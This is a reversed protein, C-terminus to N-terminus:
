DGREIDSRHRIGNSDIRCCWKVYSAWGTRNREIVGNAILDDETGDIDSDPCVLGVAMGEHLGLEAGHVDARRDKQSFLVLDPEAMENFDVHFIHM